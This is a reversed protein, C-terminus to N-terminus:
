GIPYTLPDSFIQKYENLVNILEKYNYVDILIFGIAFILWYSVRVGFVSVSIYIKPLIIMLLYVGLCFHVSMYTAAELQKRKGM